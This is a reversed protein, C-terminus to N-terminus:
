FPCDNYNKLYEQVERYQKFITPKERNLKERIASRIFASTKIKYKDRLITLTKKQATDTKFTHRETLKM